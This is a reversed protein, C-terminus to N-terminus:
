TKNQLYFIIYIKDNIIEMGSGSPIAPLTLKKQITVNMATANNKTEAPDKKPSTCSAFINTMLFVLIAIRLKGWKYGSLVQKWKIMYFYSKAQRYLM